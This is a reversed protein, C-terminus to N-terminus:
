NMGALAATTAAGVWFSHGSYKSADVGSLGLATRMRSVVATRSLPTGMVFKFFPSPERGRVAVYAAVAGVAHACTM